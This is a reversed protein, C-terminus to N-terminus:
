RPCPGPGPAPTQNGPLPRLVVLKKSLDRAEPRVMGNIFCLWQRTKQVRLVSFSYNGMYQLHARREMSLILTTDGRNLPWLLQECLRRRGRKRKRGRMRMRKRVMSWVWSKIITVNWHAWTANGLLSLKYRTRQPHTRPYGQLTEKAEWGMGVLEVIPTTM